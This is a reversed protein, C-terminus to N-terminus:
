GHTSDKISNYLDDVTPAAAKFPQPSARPRDQAKTLWRTLFGPIGRATKKRTPNDRLWQRAARLEQEVDVGPFAEAYEDIKRQSLRVEKPGKGVVPFVFDSMPESPPEAAESCSVVNTTEKTNKSKSKSKSQNREHLAQHTVDDNRRKAAVRKQTLARAKATQSNHEDWKPISIVLKGSDTEANLWGIESMAVLCGQARIATELADLTVGTVSGAYSHKDFWSWVRHLMGVVADTSIGLRVSIHIVEPMDHLEHRMKIWAM